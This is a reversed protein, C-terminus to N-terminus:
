KLLWLLIAKEMHMRNEAQTFVISQKSDIVESTVEMGRTAPLCHMFIPKGALEMIKKNVQFKKLAQVRRKKQSKPIHYSMWTDTYIINSQAVQKVNSTVLLKTKNKKALIKGVRLAKEQPQFEKKKPCIITLDMGLKPLAFLLSHVINNNADGLYTLKLGKFKGFKEKITLLDSLIQCPHSFNTLGNIVPVSANRALEEIKSHEFLRAVVIDIYHSFTKATDSISEKGKGLPSGQLDFFITHGGLKFAAVEFSLHTRLSPKEFLMLLTKNHLKNEFARPRKKIKLSLNILSLVEQKSIEKLTLLDKRKM